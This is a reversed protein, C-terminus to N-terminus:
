REVLGASAGTPLERLGVPEDEVYILAIEMIQQVSLFTALM